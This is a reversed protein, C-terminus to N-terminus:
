SSDEWAACYEAVANLLWAEAVAATMGLSIGEVVLRRSDVREADTSAEAVEIAAGVVAVGLVVKDPLGEKVAKDDTLRPGVTVAADAELV